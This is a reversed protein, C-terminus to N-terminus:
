NLEFQKLQIQQREVIGESNRSATESKVSRRLEPVYWSIDTGTSKQGTANDLLESNVTIKLAKFTGAPVSINEWGGVVGSLTHEKIAGTKINNEISTQKWSKGPYLPFDYYKLPPSFDVGGGDANRTRILNWERTFELTRVSKNKSNINVSTTVLKDSNVSTIKRETTNNLKPTDLYLSEVIYKDGPHHNPIIVPEASSNQSQGTSIGKENRNNIVTKSNKTQRNSVNQQSSSQQVQLKNVVEREPAKTHMIFKWGAFLLLSAISIKLFYSFKKPKKQLGIRRRNHIELATEIQTLKEIGEKVYYESPCYESSINFFKRAENLQNTSGSLAGPILYTFGEIYTLSGWIYKAEEPLTNVYEEPKFMIDLNLFITGDDLVEKISQPHIKSLLKGANQLTSNAQPTGGNRDAGLAAVIGETENRIEEQLEGAHRNENFWLLDDLCSNLGNAPMQRAYPTNHVIEHMAKRLKDSM